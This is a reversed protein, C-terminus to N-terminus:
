DEKVEEPHPLSIGLEGAQREVKDLYQGFEITTLVTTSRVLPIKKSRDILFMAKLSDHLEEVDYGLNESIIQLWMWYLSNQNLSRKKRYKRIRIEIQCNKLSLLFSDFKKRNNLLLKGAEIKGFFTM